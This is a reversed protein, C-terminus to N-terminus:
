KACRYFPGNNDSDNVRFFLASGVTRAVVTAKKFPEPFGCRGQWVVTNGARSVSSLDCRFEDGGMEMPEIWIMGDSLSCRHHDLAWHGVISRSGAQAEGILFSATGFAWSILAGRFISLRARSM